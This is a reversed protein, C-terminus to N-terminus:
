IPCNGASFICKRYLTTSIKLYLDHLNPSTIMSRVHAPLRSWVTRLGQASFEAGALEQLHRLFQFPKRDGMWERKLCQYLKAERSLSLRSILAAKLVEYANAQPKNTIIDRVEQITRPLLASHVRMYKSDEATIKAHALQAEFIVFWLIPDDSTFPPTIVAVANSNASSSNTIEAEMDLQHKDSPQTNM